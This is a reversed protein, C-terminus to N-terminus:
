KGDQCYRRDGQGQTRGPVRREQESLALATVEPLFGQKERNQEGLRNHGATGGVRHEVQEHRNWLHLGDPPHEQHCQGEVAEQYGGLHTTAVGPCTVM